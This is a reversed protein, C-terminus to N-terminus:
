GDAEGEPQPKLDDWGEKEALADLGRRVVEDLDQVRLRRKM